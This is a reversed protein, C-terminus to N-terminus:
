VPCNRDLFHQLAAAYAARQDRRVSHGAGAIHAAAFEGAAVKACEAALDRSILGGRETDGHVLLVPCRVRALVDTLPVIVEAPLDFMSPDVQEKSVAWPELEDDPWQPDSRRGAEIRAALDLARVDRLWDPMQTRRTQSSTSAPRPGGPPPDELVVARVLDPRREALAAATVAGMSHGVVVVGRGPVGDIADLVMAADAAHATRGFPEKPLGSSGHGRADIALLGCREPLSPVLPSWCDASDSFGHLFLVDVSPRANRRWAVHGTRGHVDLGDNM